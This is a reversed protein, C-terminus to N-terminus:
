SYVKERIEMKRLLKRYRPRNYRQVIIPYVNLLVNLTILWLAEQLTDAVLITIVGVIIFIVAHGAESSRSKAEVLSLADRQHTIKSEKRSIKEWGITVLLKRYLDVGVYKYVLGGKEFSKTDFWSSNYKWDFLSDIYTYWAMLVFNLVWAFAFGTFSLFAGTFYCILFSVTTALIAKTWKIM